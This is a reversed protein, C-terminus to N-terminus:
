PKVEFLHWVYIGEMATGIHAVVDNVVWGTGAVVFWRQEELLPSQTEDFSYWFVRSIGQM